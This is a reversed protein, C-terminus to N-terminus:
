DISNKLVVSPKHANVFDMVEETRDGFHPKANCLQEYQIGPYILNVEIFIPNDNEDLAIDWGCHGLNPLYRQHWGLVTEVISKMNPIYGDKLDVGTSSKTYKNYKSDYGYNLFRGDEDVGVMIGGAGGNDKCTDGQGCRFLISCLSCRGNINLTSIRFSNLSPPNFVSTRPSQTLVEQIIFDNGYAKLLKEIEDSGSAKRVGSGCGGEKTPKIIFENVSKLVEVTQREDIVQFDSNYYVGRIRNVYFKPQPIDKFIFPYFGKHSFSKSYALPNLARMILPYYVDVSVFRPDFHELTKFMRYYKLDPTIGISQWQKNLRAKEDITISELDLNVMNRSEARAMGKRYKGILYKCLYGEIRKKITM